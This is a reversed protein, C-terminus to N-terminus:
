PLAQLQGSLRELRVAAADDAVRVELSAPFAEVPLAGLVEDTKGKTLERRADDSSVHRVHTVGQSARLAKEIAAIQDPTADPKLFVSARGTEAWRARVSHVNVVVLISAALCVFAVAVSFISLVHLRWDNKSGRWARELPTM